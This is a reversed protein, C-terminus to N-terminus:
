EKFNNVFEEMKMGRSGKVLVVSDLFDYTKLFDNLSEREAFHRNKIKAKDLEKSLHRTMRGITYVENIKNRKIISALLKHQKLAENGLEFMDGLIATKKRFAKIRGLLEISTRMSDPNANYTDDILMFNKFKKVNLRKEIATFKKMGALIDNRSLGLKLAVAAAALFNVANQEGYLPLNAKIVKDKYRVEIRPRGQEDYGTIEGKVDNKGKFGYTIKNKIHVAYKNILPDDNNVFVIGKNKLTVDFLVAKEKLVGAKNKLFELHSSGINTILAYDPEAIQATYEIEGFHNTGLELILLEHKATTSFITLPVGIHNNNNGTTKNVTFKKSLLYSLIEKTTTKGASGTLAIVKSKLKGRWLSAIQGLAKITDKVTVVTIELEPLKKYYKENIIIASAGNKVADHIFDHGDFREGKVAVFISNSPINRSDISVASAHSYYDPNYIVADKLEFLDQLSISIRKM